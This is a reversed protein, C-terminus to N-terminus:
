NINLKKKIIKSIILSLILIVLIKVLYIPHKFSEILSVGIFGWFYVLFIKGIIIAILFKKFSMKSLACAINVLFAPTFPISILMTLEELKLNTVTQMTKKSLLGKNKLRKYIWPRMKKRFLYFSLFCGLCTFIWSIIFGIFKGFSLFNFTIFVFLPLIPFISELVILICGSVPGCVGLSDLITNILNEIM